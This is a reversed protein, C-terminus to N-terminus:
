NVANTILRIDVNNRVNMMTRGFVSNNMLKYFNKEFNNKAKTRLNTKLDIYPKLWPSQDFELIKHIKEVRSGNRIYKQLTIYHVVYKKKDYLNLTLKPLTVGDFQNEPALPFDSHKDHLEEPYTLDVEFIYGKPSNVDLNLIDTIISSNLWKFGGRPLYQSMAWGYLNNADLYELYVSEKNKNFKEGM